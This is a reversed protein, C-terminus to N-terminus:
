LLKLEGTIRDIKDESDPGIGVCTNTGPEICTRGADTIIAVALGMDKAMQAYKFLEKESEVKLVSKKQGHARWQKYLQPDCKHAAEVAAHACQSGIKGKPLKLDNRVILVQKLEM